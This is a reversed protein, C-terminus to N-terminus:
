PKFERRGIRKIGLTVRIKNGKEGGGSKQIGRGSVSKTEKSTAPVKGKKGNEGKGTRPQTKLFFTKIGPFELGGWSLLPRSIKGGGRELNKKKARRLRGAKKNKNSSKREASREKKAKKM